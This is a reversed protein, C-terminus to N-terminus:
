KDLILNFAENVHNIPYFSIGKIINSNQYKELFEDFDKQNDKPFIFSKVGAKISGIIKHTLGGIATVQGSMQIEGTIAFDAKIPINNLLSYIVCTIACGGSPGDKQVSGDGTHINIGCKNNILDYKERIINQKDIDILNWAVTLSVHMSERMVEQQLGTLKLELFINSPFFKAHIPLTGGNGYSTAYMGNILGITNINIIPQIIIYKKDKLYKNKINDITIKIPLEYNININKLIDLNIDGIIEFLLEKLKRVGPELTYEDIIFTLVTDNFLIMNELGMKKCIEPIIHKHSIILKDELNLNKFQIRHIRDLLIKDINDPNNYSLIFLVKSLDLNIGTFYKDQFCDNQTSDLLHTLIGIIEKGHDTQSIKDVEDIFIIPNMCKTDILIQVITGWTSGVYTYNHGQLTSGNSEGGMQIMSFPRNVGKDDKLFESLGRKALSTKGVGPPGEFGFCYGDQEGNIWQSIIKEIHQKAKDHGYVATDLTSKVDIMYNSLKNININLSEINNTINNSNINQTIVFSNIIDKIIEINSNMKYTEIFEIIEKQMQNKNKANSKIYEKKINYKQIINNIIIINKQLEEKNCTMCYKKINEINESNNTNLYQQIKKIYQLIEVNTYKNKNPIENIISEINNEIYIYKFQKKIEDMLNLIPEKKYINFPIKLLGDLYQRAKINSDDTKTKIEKLKIMAKEKVLDSTKLLCIQQEIPIKNIDYNNLKNTYYITKKMAQKFFQKLSWPFSDFIIIQEKTDIMENSSNSLLDYLLYALYQNECNSSCILLTILMNRKNFMEYACFEKIIDPLLKQKLINYQTIYILYKNYIDNEKDYILYDKLNLSSIFNDLFDQNLLDKKLIQNKIQKKKDIIYNNNVFNIFIDDVIGYIILSTKLVINYIYLKMGFVKMHFQKYNLSVDYCYLNLSANISIENTNNKDKKNIFKYSIPHFYKKLLDLKDLELETIFKNNNGFCIMLLDELSNTGYIKLLCSLDNNIIQLHNILNDNNINDNKINNKIDNNTNNLLITIEEIKINLEEFKEICTTVENINLIDFFSNKQVHIITKQIVDQFFIIKQEVLILVDNIKITNKINKSLEM